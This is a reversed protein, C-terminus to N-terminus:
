ADRGVCSSPYTIYGPVPLDPTQGDFCRRTRTIQGEGETIVRLIEDTPLILKGVRAVTM